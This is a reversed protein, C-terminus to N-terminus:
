GRMQIRVFALVLVIVVHLVVFNKLDVVVIGPLIHHMTTGIVPVQNVTLYHSINTLVEVIFVLSSIFLFQICVIVFRFLLIDSISTTLIVHRARQVLRVKHEKTVQQDQLDLTVRRVKHEKHDQQGQVRLEKLEKHVSLVQLDKLEKHDVQDKLEKLEQIDQIVKLEKHELLDQLGKLVKLVERV